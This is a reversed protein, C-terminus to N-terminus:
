MQCWLWQIQTMVDSTDIVDCCTHFDDCKAYMHYWECEVCCWMWVKYWWHETNIVDCGCHIVDWGRYRHCWLWEIVDCGSHKHIQIWYLQCWVCQTLVTCGSYRVECVGDTHDCGHYQHYLVCQIYSMVCIIYIACYASYVGDCGHKIVDWCEVRSMLAIIDWRVGM